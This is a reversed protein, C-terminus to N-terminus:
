YSKIKEHLKSQIEDNLTDNFSDHLMILMAKLLTEGDYKLSKGKAYTMFIINSVVKDKYKDDVGRLIYEFRKDIEVREDPKITRLDEEKVKENEM